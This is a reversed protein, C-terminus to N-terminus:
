SFILFWCGKWTDLFLHNCLMLNFYMYYTFSFFAGPRTDNIYTGTHIIYLPTKNQQPLGTQVLNATISMNIKHVTGKLLPPLPPPTAPWQWWDIQGILDQWGEGMLWHGTHIILLSTYSITVQITINICSQIFQCTLANVMLRIIELKIWRFTYWEIKELGIIIVLYYKETWNTVQRWRLLLMNVFWKLAKTGEARNWICKRKQHGAIKSTFFSNKGYM